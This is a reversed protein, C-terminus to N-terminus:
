RSTAVRRRRPAPSSRTRTATGRTPAWRCTRSTAAASGRHRRVSAPCTWARTTAPAACSTRRTRPSRATPARRSRRPAPTPRHGGNPRRCSGTLCPPPQNLASSASAGCVRRAPLQPDGGARHCRGAALVSVGARRRQPLAQAHRHVIELNALTQPLSERVDSFVANVADGHARRQGAHQAADPGARRRRHSATSTPRGGRSPTVPTSRATSSRRRTASSTTSTTSTPGSTVRRDGPHRRCAAAAGPGLGGVAQSTEDLLAAIKEKPLVALGSNAADLAPGIERPVTGKTITQGALLVPGGQRDVGPRPVARRDGVGLARQGVRRDPDQLRQLHEDDREGRTRHARRRHGQRDTIGRYTVNATRYLGGPGPLNPMCSTSGSARGRQAVAPLVLGVRDARDADAGHVPDAPDQHPPDACNM